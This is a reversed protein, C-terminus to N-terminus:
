AEEPEYIEFNIKQVKYTKINEVPNKYVGYEEPVTLMYNFITNLHTRHKNVTNNSLNKEEKLYSLYKRILVTTIKSIRIEGFYEMIHRQINGNPTQKTEEGKHNWDDFAEKITKKSPKSVIDKIRDAEHLKLFKRAETITGEIVKSSKEGVIGAM